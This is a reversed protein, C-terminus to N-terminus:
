VNLDRNPVTKKKRDRWGASAAAGGRFSFCCCSGRLCPCCGLCWAVCGRVRVWLVVALVVGGFAPGARDLDVVPNYVVVEWARAAASWWASDFVSEGPGIYLKPSVELMVFLGWSLLELLGAKLLFRFVVIGAVSAVLLGNLLRANYSQLFASRERAATRSLRAAYTARSPGVCRRSWSANCAAASDDFKRLSPLRMSQLGVLEEECASSLSECERGSAFANKEARAAYLAEARRKLAAATVAGRGFRDRRFGELARYAAAEHARLLEEDLAPLRVAELAAQYGALHRELADRNFSDVVNGASPFDGENLARVSREILTALAPGTMLGGGGGGDGGGGVLTAVTSKARAERRVLARLQERQAVYSPELQDDALECLKTRQLHPQKLGFATSNRALARLSTRIRNLEDVHKDNGPNAVPELAGRVMDNM